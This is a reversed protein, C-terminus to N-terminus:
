QDRSLASPEEDQFEMLELGLTLCYLLSFFNLFRAFGGKDPLIRGSIYRLVQRNPVRRKEQLTRRKRLVTAPHFLIWILAFLKGLFENFGTVLRKLLM